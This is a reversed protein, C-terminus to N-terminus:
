RLASTQTGYVTQLTETYSRSCQDSHATFLVAHFITDLQANHEVHDKMAAHCSKTGFHM